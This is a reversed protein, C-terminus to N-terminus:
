AAHYVGLPSSIIPAPTCRRTVSWVRPALTDDICDIRQVGDLKSAVQTWDLVVAGLGCAHIWAIPNPLLPLPERTARAWEVQDLGLVPAEGIRNFKQGTALPQAVLDILRGDDLVPAIVAWQGPESAKVARYRGAGEPMIKGFGWHSGRAHDLGLFRTLVSFRPEYLRRSAHHLELRLGTLPGDIAAASANFKLFSALQAQRATLHKKVASM